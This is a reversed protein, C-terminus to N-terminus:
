ASEIPRARPAPAAASRRAARALPAITGVAVVVFVLARPLTTVSALAGIVPPGVLFGTYGATAVAALGVGPAIGPTTAGSRFAIPVIGAMGAGLAAFGLVGAIPHGVLLAIGLGGAGILSGGVLVRTEGYRTLVRDGLLRGAVMASSFAAFGLAAVGAGAHLPRALYVASWDAASGEAVLCLFAITGLALLRRPPRALLPARDSIAAPPAALLYRGSVFTGVLVAAAVGALHARADVGAAAVAAGLGSGILGGASFAAHMSALIPRRYRNEVEVGNANMSVDMTGTAAGMAVLALTLLALNPMAAPLALAVAFAGAAVRLVRRSGFREVLVGTLVMAVIAGLAIGFLALGLQANSLGLRGQVAPVRAAWSGIGAGNLVFAATVAARRRRDSV